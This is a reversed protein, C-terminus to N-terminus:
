ASPLGEPDIGRARLCAALRPSRTHAWANWLRLLVDDEDGDGSAQALVDACVEFGEAVQAYAARQPPTASLAGLVGFAAAGM